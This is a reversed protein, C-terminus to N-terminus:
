AVCVHHSALTSCSSLTSPRLLSHKGIFAMLRKDEKKKNKSRLAANQREMWRKHERCEASDVDHEDEDPHERWSKFQFWFDYFNDVLKDPTNADGLQPVPLRESWRSQRKFADGFLQVAMGL